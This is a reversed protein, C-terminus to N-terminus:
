TWRKMWRSNSRPLAIKSGLLQVLSTRQSKLSSFINTKFEFAQQYSPSKKHEKLFVEQYLDGELEMKQKPVLTLYKKMFTNAEATPWRDAEPPHFVRKAMAFGAELLKVHNPDDGKPHGNFAHFVDLNAKRKRPSWIIAFPGVPTLTVIGEPTGPVPDQPGPPGPPRRVSQAGHSTGQAGLNNRPPTDGQHSPPPDYDDDEVELQDYDDQDHNYQGRSGSAMTHPSGLFSPARHAM